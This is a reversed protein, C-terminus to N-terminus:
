ILLALFREDATVMQCSKHVALALYVYDYVAQQIRVAIQVIM